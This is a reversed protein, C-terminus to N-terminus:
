PETSPETRQSSSICYGYIAGLLTCMSGPDLTTGSLIHARINCMDLGSSSKFYIDDSTYYGM